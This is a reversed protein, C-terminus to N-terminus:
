AEEAEAPPGNHTALLLYAARADACKQVEEALDNVAGVKAASAKSASTRAKDAAKKAAQAQTAQEAADLEQVRAVLQDTAATLANEKDAGAAKLGAVHTDWQQLKQTSEAQKTALVKAIEAVVMAEFGETKGLANPAAQLLAANCGDCGKLVSVLKTVEKKSPAESAAATALATGLDEAAADLKEKQKGLQSQEKQSATLADGCAELHKEAADQREQAQATADVCQQLHTNAAAAAEQAAQEDAGAHVAAHQADAAKADVVNVAAALAEGIATAFIRM